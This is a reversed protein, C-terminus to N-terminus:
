KQAIIVLDREVRDIIIPSKFGAKKLASIFQKENMRFEELYDQKEHNIIDKAVKRPLYEYRKLQKDLLEKGGKDPYVKDMFIFWGKPKLNEHISELLKQKDPWTFNHVTWESFIIDYAESKELYVLADECVYRIRKSFSKLNKKSLAIMEPSVDLLDLNAESKELLYRASDGEGCGIELTKKGARYIKNFEFTVILRSTEGAPSLKLIEQNHDRLNKEYRNKM